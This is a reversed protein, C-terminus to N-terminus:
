RCVRRITSRSAGAACNPRSAALLNAIPPSSRRPQGPTELKRRLLLAITLAEEQAGACDYRSLGALAEAPLSALDRWAETTAAPRMAESVLQMRQTRPSAKRALPLGWDRIDAPSLDLAKLLTAM